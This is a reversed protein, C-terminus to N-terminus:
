VALAHTVYTHFHWQSCDICFHTSSFAQCNFLVPQEALVRPYMGLVWVASVVKPVARSTCARLKPVCVHIWTFVCTCLVLSFLFLVYSVDLFLLKREKKTIGWHSEFSRWICSLSFALSRLLVNLAEAWHQLEISIFSLEMNLVWDLGPWWLSYFM